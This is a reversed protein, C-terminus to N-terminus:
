NRLEENQIDLMNKTGKKKKQYDRIEEIQEPPIVGIYYNEWIGIAQPIINSIETQPTYNVKLKYTQKSGKDYWYSKNVLSALEDDQLM